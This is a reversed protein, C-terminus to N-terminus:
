HCFRGDFFFTLSVIRIDSCGSSVITCPARLFFFVPITVVPFGFFLFNCSADRGGGGGKGGCWDVMMIGM